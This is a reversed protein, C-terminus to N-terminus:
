GGIQQSVAGHFVLEATEYTWRDVGVVHWRGGSLQYAQHYEAPPDGFAETDSVEDAFQVIYRM